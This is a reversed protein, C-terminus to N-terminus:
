VPAADRLGGAADDTLTCRARAPELRCGREFAQIPGGSGRPEYVAWGLRPSSRRRDRWLARVVPRGARGPPPLARRDRGSARASLRYAAWSSGERRSSTSRAPTAAGSRSGGQFSQELADGDVARCPKRTRACRRGRRTSRHDRRCRSAADQRGMASALSPRQARRPWPRTPSPRDPRPPATASRSHRSPNGPARDLGASRAARSRVRSPGRRDDTERNPRRQAARGGIPRPRSRPRRHCATPLEGAGPRL